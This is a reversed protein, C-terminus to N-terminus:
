IKFHKLLEDVTIPTSQSRPEQKEETLQRPQFKNNNLTPTLENSGILVASVEILRAEKVAFFYGQQEVAEANGIQEIYSQWVKYEDEYDEDNVALDIKIYQMGVSHQDVEDNLYAEYVKENYTKKIESEMILAMTSGKLNVGLEKWKIEKEAIDSLKGVKASLEFKHDHLHPIRNGREKISKAFLNPLHVDDHSDMWNYTNAVITRKIIGAKEDNEYTYSKDVSKVTPANTLAPLTILDTFKTVSKKMDIIEAKHKIIYDLLQKKCMSDEGVIKIKM